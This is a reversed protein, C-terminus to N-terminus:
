LARMAAYGSISQAECIVPTIVSRIVHLGVGLYLGMITNGFIKIRYLALVMM